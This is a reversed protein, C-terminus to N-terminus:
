GGDYVCSARLVPLRIPVFGKRQVNDYLSYFVYNEAQDSSFRVMFGDRIGWDIGGEIGEGAGCCRGWGTNRANFDGLAATFSEDIQTLISSM